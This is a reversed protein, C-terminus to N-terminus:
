ITLMLSVFDYSYKPIFFKTNSSIKHFNDLKLDNSTYKVLSKIRLILQQSLNL